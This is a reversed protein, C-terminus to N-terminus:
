SSVELADIKVVENKFQVNDVFTIVYTKGKCLIRYYKAKVSDLKKHWRLQFRVTTDAEVQAANWRETGSLQNVYAKNAYYKIWEGTPFGDADVDNGTNKQIVIKEKYAGANM